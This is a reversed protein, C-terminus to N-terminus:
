EVNFLSKADSNECYRNRDERIDTARPRGSRPTHVFLGTAVYRRYIHNVTGHALNYQLAVSCRSRGENVLAVIQASIEPSISM